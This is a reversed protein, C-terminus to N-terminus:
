DSKAQNLTANYVASDKLTKANKFNNKSSKFIAVVFPILRIRLNLM